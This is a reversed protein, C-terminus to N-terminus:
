AAAGTLKWAAAAEEILPVTVRRVRAFWTDKKEDRITKGEVGQPGRGSYGGGLNEDGMAGLAAPDAVLITGATPLNPTSLFTMGDIEPWVGSALPNGAERPLLGASLFAAFANAFTLDDLVVLTPDYGQNLAIINARARLIDKLMQAGTATNFSATVATTQTVASAIAALAVSDVYKVNQNVLKLFARDVARMKRRAISEDTIEEDQGWKVTKVISAPADAHSTLPYDSGPAVARPNDNTFLPDAGEVEFAGSTTTERGPLLVDAIYRQDALTRMRRSVLAPSNLFRNVSEVDGSITPAAPPYTAM